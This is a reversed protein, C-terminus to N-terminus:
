RGSASGSSSACWSRRDGRVDPDAAKPLWQLGEAPMCYTCRFNCRDTVSVRLDDAVRGFTDVLPGSSPAEGAPEFAPAAAPKRGLALPIPRQENTTM